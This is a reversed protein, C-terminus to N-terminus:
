WGDPSFGFADHRCWATRREALGMDEHDVASSLPASVALLPLDPRLRFIFKVPQRMEHLAGRM